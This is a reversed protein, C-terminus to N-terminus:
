PVLLKPKVSRVPWEHVHWPNPGLALGQLLVDVVAPGHEVQTFIVSGRVPGSASETYKFEATV